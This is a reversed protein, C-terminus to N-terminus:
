APRQIVWEDQIGFWVGGAFRVLKADPVAEALVKTVFRPMAITTGYESTDIDLQDSTSRYGYGPETGTSLLADWFEPAQARASHGHTTFILHGSPSLINYLALLWKAFSDAPLHSFLSVVFILDYHNGINICSPDINSVMVEVGIENRLFECGDEHIDSSVLQMGKPMLKRLHRTVRGFGAAFELVKSPKLELAAILEVIQLAHANGDRIYIRACQDPSPGAHKVMYGLLQDKESLKPSVGYLSAEEAAAAIIEMTLDFAKESPIGHKEILAPPDREAMARGKNGPSAHPRRASLAFAAPYEVATLTVAEFGAEIVGCWVDAGYETHVRWDEGTQAPDGHYSPPLNDRRRTMRGVIIPVTFCLSGGPKLVRLCERLGAVPDPVHELTDSHVVADFNAEPFSLAQMDERPYTASRYAPIERLVDSLGAAGNLDLVSLERARASRTFEALVPGANWASILTRALAISRLNGGCGVCTRGQQLDVYREEEPSLGWEAVLAPWLVRREEFRTGGCISCFTM